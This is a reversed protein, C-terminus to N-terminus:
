RADDRRANVRTDKETQRDARQGGQEPEMVARLELEMYGRSRAHALDLEPKQDWLVGIDPYQEALVSMKKMDLDPTKANLTRIADQRTPNERIAKKIAASGLGKNIRPNEIADALGPDNKLVATLDPDPRINYVTKSIDNGTLIEELIVYDVHLGEQVLAGLLQEYRARGRAQVSDVGRLDFRFRKLFEKVQRRNWEESGPRTWLDWRDRLIKHIGGQKILWDVTVDFGAKQLDAAVWSDSVISEAKNWKVREAALLIQERSPKGNSIQETVPDDNNVAIKVKVTGALVNAGLQTLYAFNDAELVILELSQRALMDDENLVMKLGSSQRGNQSFFPDEDAIEELM